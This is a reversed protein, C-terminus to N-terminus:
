GGKASPGSGDRAWRRRARAFGGSDKYGLRFSIESLSLTGDLLCEEGAKRRVDDLVERFSSGEAKLKRRLSRESLALSSAIAAASADGEQLEKLLESRVREVLMSNPPVRAAQSSAHISLVEHLRPDSAPLTRTAWSMPAVVYDVDSDYFLPCRFFARHEELNSPASHAFHAAVWQTEEGLVERTAVLWSAVVFEIFHRSVPGRRVNRLECRMMEGSPELTMGGASHIFRQFRELSQLAQGFNEATRIAFDLIDLDGPRLSQAAHIGLANDRLLESTEDWIQMAELLPIRREVNSDLLEAAATRMLAKSWALETLELLRLPPRLVLASVTARGTRM